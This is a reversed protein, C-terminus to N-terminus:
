RLMHRIWGWKRKNIEQEIPVQGPTEWLNQQFDDRAMKHQPHQSPLQQHLQAAQPLKDKHHAMDSLRLASGVERHLHLEQDQQTPIPSLVELNPTTHLLRVQNQKHPEQHRRGNGRGQQNCQWPIYVQRSRQYKGPTSPHPCATQQQSKNRDQNQQDQAQDKRSARQSNFKIQADQHKQSMLPIDDAFDLDQLQKTFTWQIGTTRETTSQWMVWDIVM